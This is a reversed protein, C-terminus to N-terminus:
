DGLIDKKITDLQKSPETVVEGIGTKIICGGREINDSKIFRIESGSQIIDALKDKNNSIMEFDAPNVRIEYQDSNRVREFGKRLMEIVIEPNSKIENGIVKKTIQFVLKLLEQESNDYINKKLINLKKISDFYNGSVDKVAERLKGEFENLLQQRIDNEAKIKLTNAEIELSKYKEQAIALIEDAKDKAASEPDEKHKEIFIERDKKQRNNEILESVELKSPPIYKNYRTDNLRDSSLVESLM